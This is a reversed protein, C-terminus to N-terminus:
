VLISVEILNGDPARFYISRITGQADQRQVIGLEIEIGRSESQNM